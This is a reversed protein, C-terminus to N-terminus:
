SGVQNTKCFDQSRPVRFTANSLYRSTLSRILFRHSLASHFTISRGNVYSSWFQRRVYMRPLVDIQMIHCLQNTLSSRDIFLLFLHHFYKFLRKSRHPKIVAISKQGFSRRTCPCYLRSSLEIRNVQRRRISKSLHFLLTSKRGPMLKFKVTIRSISRPM